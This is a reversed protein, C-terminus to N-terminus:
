QIAEYWILANRAMLESSASPGWSGAPYPHPNSESAKWGNLITEVWVWAAELEDRRMFHTLRGKISDRICM